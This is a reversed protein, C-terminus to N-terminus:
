EENAYQMRCVEQYAESILVVSRDQRFANQGRFTNSVLVWRLPIQLTICVKSIDNLVILSNLLIEKTLLPIPSSPFNSNLVSSPLCNLSSRSIFHSSIYLTTFLLEEPLPQKVILRSSQLVVFKKQNLFHEKDALHCHSPVYYVSIHIMFTATVLGTSTKDARSLKTSAERHWHRNPENSRNYGM